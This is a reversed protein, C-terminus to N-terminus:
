IADKRGDVAGHVGIDLTMKGDAGPLSVVQPATVPQAVPRREQAEHAMMADVRMMEQVFGMIEDIQLAGAHLQLRDTVEAHPDCKIIKAGAIGRNQFDAFQRQIHYLEVALEDGAERM